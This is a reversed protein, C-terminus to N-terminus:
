NADMRLPKNQVLRKMTPVVVANMANITGVYGFSDKRQIMRSNLSFSPGNRQQSM